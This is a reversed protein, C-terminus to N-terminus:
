SQVQNLLRQNMYDLIEEKSITNKNKLFAETKELSPEVSNGPKYISAGDSGPIHQAELQDLGNKNL